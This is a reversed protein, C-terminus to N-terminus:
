REGGSRPELLGEVSPTGPLPVLNPIYSDFWPGTGLTNAFVRVFPALLEISRDLNRQNERLLKTVAALRRLAPELQARNDEVLGSIQRSLQQTTVLLEHILARRARIEDLLLDGDRLLRELQRDRDALVKSVTNARALLARLQADREAITRSLRSLGDLTGRVEEPTNAFTASLTDLATALQETDIQEATVTLDSFVEVVDYPAVTRSRPIETDPDLEKAGAPYLALYKRGLITRVRIAAGTRDGIRVDDDTIRFEVRVHDGDLEVARVEGVKVGAVRVEDDVRLGGAESFQAAYTRGGGIVPLDSANFAAYVLAALILLGVAGVVVPNRDRRATM